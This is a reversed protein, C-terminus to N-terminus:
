FLSAVLEWIEAGTRYFLGGTPDIPDPLGGFFGAMRAIWLGLIAVGFIAWFWSPVKGLPDLQNPGILGASRSTARLVSFVVLPSLLPALPHFHLVAHFDGMVLAETARTLGCGPCPIGLLGRSPCIPVDLSVLVGLIMLPAFAFFVKRWRIPDDAGGGRSAVSDSVGAGGENESPRAPASPDGTLADGTEGIGESM